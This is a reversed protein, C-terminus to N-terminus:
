AGLYIHKPNLFYNDEEAILAHVEWQPPVLTKVVGPWLPISFCGPSAGVWNCVHCSKAYCCPVPSFVRERLFAEKAIVLSRFAALQM